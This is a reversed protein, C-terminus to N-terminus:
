FEYITGERAIHLAMESGAKKVIGQASEFLNDLMEDNHMPDHHFLILQEVNAKLGLNVTYDYPSHGWTIRTKYEEPTYQSDHILLTCDKVFQILKETGDEGLYNNKKGNEVTAFPENDSIYVITRDDFHLKYGLAYGPHNIYITDIKIGDIEYSGESLPTFHLKSGM